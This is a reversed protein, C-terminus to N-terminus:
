RATGDRLKPRGARCGNGTGGIERSATVRRVIAVDRRGRGHGRGPQAARRREVLRAVRRTAYRVYQERSEEVLTPGLKAKIEPWLRNLGDLAATRGAIAEFVATTSSAWNSSRIPARRCAAGVALREDGRDTERRGSTRPRTAKTAADVPTVATSATVPQEPSAVM